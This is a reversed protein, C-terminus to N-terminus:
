SDCTASSSIKTSRSAETSLLFVEDIDFFAASSIKQRKGDPSYTGDVVKARQQSVSRVLYAYIGSSYFGRNSRWLLQSRQREIHQTLYQNDFLVFRCSNRTTRPPFDPIIQDQSM